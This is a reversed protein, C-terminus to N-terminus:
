VAWLMEKGTREESLVRASRSEILNATFRPLYTMEKNISMRRDRLEHRRM